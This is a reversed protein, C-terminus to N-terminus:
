AALGSEAVPEAAQEPPRALGYLMAIDDADALDAQDPAIPTLWHQEQQHGGLQMSAIRDSVRAAAAADFQEGFIRKM